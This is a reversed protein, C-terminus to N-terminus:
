VVVAFALSAMRTASPAASGVPPRIMLVGGSWTLPDEVKDGVQAWTERECVYTLVEDAVEFDSLVGRRSATMVHRIMPIVLESRAHQDIAFGLFGKVYNMTYPYGTALEVLRPYFDGPPRRCVEIFYVDNASAIVQLHLLGDVLNLAKALHMVHKTIREIQDHSLNTPTAAGAVRFQNAGYYEDDAFLFAPRGDRLLMSVGHNTGSIYEELIVSHSPSLNRAVLHARELQGIDDIRSIGRGGALDSPKILAPTGLERFWDTANELTQVACAQPTPIGLSQLAQRLLHKTHIVEAVEPTDYGPLGLAAAARAAAVAALDHCSPVIGVVDDAHIVRLLDEFDAYDFNVYADSEKHAPDSPRNGGSIVRYGLSKCARISPLDGHAGGTVLITEM